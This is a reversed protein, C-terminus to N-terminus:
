RSGRASCAPHAFAEAVKLPGVKGFCSAWSLGVGFGSLLLCLSEGQLREGLDHCLVMPISASSQNGYARLTGVPVKAIPFGLRQALNKLIFHNAQHLVLADIDDASLKLKELFAKLSTTEERLTFNFVELGNVFLNEGTRVNGDADTQEERLSPDDWHRHGGGPICIARHGTGDSYLDFTFPNAKDGRELLTASCADSFLPVIARDQPHIKQTVTDGALLLVRQCAGSEILSGALWLGYVWGSCGQNVDFAAVTKPLGLRGHLINANSPQFHDPTQTVFILADIGAPDCPLSDILRRAAAEGLDLTTLGKPAIWRAEIGVFDRLRKLQEPNDRFLAAEDDLTRRLPGTCVTVGRLSLHQFTTFPMSSPFFSFRQFASVSFHICISSPFFSFRQFASVSFHFPDIV